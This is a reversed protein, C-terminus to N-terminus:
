SPTLYSRNAIWSLVSFSLSGSMMLITPVLLIVLLPLNKEGSIEGFVMAVGTIIGEVAGVLMGLSVGMSLGVIIGAVSVLPM